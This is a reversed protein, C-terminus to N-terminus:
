FAHSTLLSQYSMNQIYVCFLIFMLFLEMMEEATNEKQKITEESMKIDKSLNEDINDMQCSM